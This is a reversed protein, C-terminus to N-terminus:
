RNMWEHLRRCSWGDTFWMRSEPHDKRWKGILAQRLLFDWQYYLINKERNGYKQFTGPYTGQIGLEKLRVFMWRLERTLEDLGMAHPRRNENEPIRFIARGADLADFYRSWRKCDMEGSKGSLGRELAEPPMGSADLISKKARRGSFVMQHLRTKVDSSSYLKM